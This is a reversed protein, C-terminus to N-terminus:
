DENFLGQQVESAGQIHKALISAAKGKAIETSGNQAARAAETLEKIDPISTEVVSRIFTSVPTRTLSSFAQLTDFDDQSLTVHVRKVRKAIPPRGKKTDM